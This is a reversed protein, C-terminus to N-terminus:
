GIELIYKSIFCIQYKWNLLDSFLSFETVDTVDNFNNLLSWATNYQIRIIENTKLQQVDGHLSLAVVYLVVWKQIM